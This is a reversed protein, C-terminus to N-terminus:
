KVTCAMLAAMAVPRGIGSITMGTTPPSRRAQQKGHQKTPHRGLAAAGREGHDRQTQGLKTPELESIRRENKPPPSPTVVLRVLSSNAQEVPIEARLDLDVIQDGGPAQRHMAKIYASVRVGKPRM